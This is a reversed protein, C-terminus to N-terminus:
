GGAGELLSHRNVQNRGSKKAAYLAVDAQELLLGPDVGAAQEMNQACSIGASLTIVEREPHPHPIRLAEVSDLIQRLRGAAAEEPTTPLIMAFEEGGYRAVTDGARRLSRSLVGAIEKLIEDGRNHGLVDNVTKFYDIDLLAYSVPLLSRNARRWERDVQETFFRRNYLGTLSDRVAAARLVLTQEIFTAHDRIDQIQGKDYQRPATGACALVGVICRDPSYVPVALLSRLLMDGEVRHHRAFREDRTLDPVCVLEGVNMAQACISQSADSDRVEFGYTAIFRQIGHALPVSFSAYEQDLVRGLSRVMRGLLPDGQAQELDLQEVASRTDTAGRLANSSAM